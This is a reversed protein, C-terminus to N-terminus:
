KNNKNANENCYKVLTQLDIIGKIWPTNVNVPELKDQRLEIFGNFEKENKITTNM